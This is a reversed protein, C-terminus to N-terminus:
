AAGKLVAAVPKFSRRHYPTPGYQKLMEHHYATGYGSNREWGYVPYELALQQMIQDRTVKAFISAAAIAYSKQDGKIVATSPFSWTPLHPGDVLVHKMHIPFNSLSREMALFTAKLINLSDIEEVNAVGVQYTCVDPMEQLAKWIFIRRQTNLRKSDDIRELLSTPIKNSNLFVAAAVVPGAWPGRGAEDVGVVSLPSFQHELSWNPM